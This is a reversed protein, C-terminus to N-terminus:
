GGILATEWNEKDQAFNWSNDFKHIFTVGMKYKDKIDQIIEDTMNKINYIELECSVFNFRTRSTTNPIGQAGYSYGTYFFLNYLCTRLRSSVKYLMLKAINGTYKTMLDVDDAGYVSNAQMRLQQLRQSQNAEAQATTNVANTFQSVASVALMVGATATGAGGAFSAIAGITTLGFGLWSMAETRQKSKVDYNYGNKLYSMYSSSYTTVQNNRAVYLINDYDNLMKDGTVYENFTFLFRSNITNTATFTFGFNGNIATCSNIDIRELAFVFSFSDYVFKPQYYDSHWLKSEMEINKTTKTTDITGIYLEHYPNWWNADYENVSLDMNLASLELCKYTSNYSANQYAGSGLKLLPMYPLKIIKVIDDQTIDFSSFTDLTRTTPVFSITSTSGTKITATNSTYSGLQNVELSSAGTDIALSSASHWESSNKHYFGFGISEYNMTRYKINAGDLYYCIATKRGVPGTPLQGTIYQYIRAQNGINDTFIIEASQREPLIYYYVGATLDSPVIVKQAQFPVSEPYEPILLAQITTAGKYVLYWNNSTNADDLFSKNEGYLIPNIGESNIDIDRYWEKEQGLTGQFLKYSSNGDVIANTYAGVFDGHAPWQIVLQEGDIPYFPDGGYEFYVYGQSDIKLIVQSESDDCEKLLTITKLQPNYSYIKIVIGRLAGGLTQTVTTPIMLYPSTIPITELKERLLYYSFGQIPVAGSVGSAFDNVDITEENAPRLIKYKFRDKHQRNITTKENITFDISARFTNITDMELDFAITDKSVQYKNVIFYYVVKGTGNQIKCYNYGTESYDINTQTLDVKISVRMSHRIYQFKTVEKKTLTALYDEISDVIFLRAPLIEANQYLTLTSNM